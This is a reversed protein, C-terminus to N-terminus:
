LRLVAAKAVKVMNELLLGAHSGRFVTNVVAHRGIIVIVVIIIIFLQRQAGKQASKKETTANTLALIPRAFDQPLPHSERKLTSTLPIVLAAWESTHSM